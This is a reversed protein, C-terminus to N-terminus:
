GEGIPPPAQRGPLRNPLDTHHWLARGAISGVVVVPMFWTQSNLRALGFVGAGPYAVALVMVLGYGALSGVIRM